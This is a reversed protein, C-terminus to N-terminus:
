SCGLDAFSSGLGLLAVLSSLLGQNCSGPGVASDFQILFQLNGNLAIM